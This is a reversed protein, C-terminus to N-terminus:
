TSTTALELHRKMVGFQDVDTINGGSLEIIDLFVHDPSFGSEEYLPPSIRPYGPM